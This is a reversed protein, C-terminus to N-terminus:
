RACAWRLRRCRSRSGGKRHSRACSPFRDVWVERRVRGSSRETGCLMRATAAAALSRQGTHVRSIKLPACPWRLRRCRSRDGGKRHSRACSPFRGVWVERRVRGSSRETGCLIRATAAAALSRQGTHVRSIKLPACPWRLRRCRSRDGGKRHSRACSPFRGVWVERRVRGSSRETGCLIRATAAAALSRQGTHVRFISMPGGAYQMQYGGGHVGCGRAAWGRLLTVFM